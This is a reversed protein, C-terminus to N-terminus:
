TSTSRTRTSSTRSARTSRQAAARHHRARGRQGAGQARRARHRDRAYIGLVHGSPPIPIATSTQLNAPFPDPILLWPYYLAAYKTDFQQRQNQVDTITDAPRAVPRRARRLPLAHLECHDILASQLGASTRGPVAVISIDDFTTLSFLGTRHDPDINDIGVYVADASPPSAFRRRPGGVAPPARAGADAPCCTSWLRLASVRVDESPSPTTSASM